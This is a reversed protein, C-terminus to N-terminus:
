FWKLCVGMLVVQPFHQVTSVECADKVATVISGAPSDAEVSLILHDPVGAYVQIVPTDRCAVVMQRTYKNIALRLISDTAACPYEFFEDLDAPLDSPISLRVRHGLFYSDPQYGPGPTPLLDEAETAFVVNMAEGIEQCDKSIIREWFTDNKSCNIIPFVVKVKHKALCKFTILVPRFSIKWKLAPSDCMEDNVYVDQSASWLGLQNALRRSIQTTSGTNVVMARIVVPEGTLSVKLSVETNM